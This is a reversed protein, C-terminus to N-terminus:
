KTLKDNKHSSIFIVEISDRGFQKSYEMAEEPTFTIGPFDPHIITITDPDIIFPKYTLGEYFKRISDPHAYLHAM